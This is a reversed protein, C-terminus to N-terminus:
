RRPPEWPWTGTLLRWRVFVILFVLASISVASFWTMGFSLMALCIAVPAVVLLVFGAIRARRQRVAEFDQTMDPVRGPGLSAAGCCNATVAARTTAPALGTIEVWARPRDARWRTM